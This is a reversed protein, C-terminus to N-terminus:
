PLEFAIFMLRSARQIQVVVPDGSHLKDLMDRLEAINGFSEGNVACILDGTMFEDNPAEANLLKAAVVAGAPKRLAGLTDMLKDDLNLALIGLQPVLNSEMTAMHAFRFPDNPREAVQVEFSVKETGRLADFTVRDGVAHQRISAELRRADTVPRSDLALIIDGVKAGATDAPGGPTVDELIMGHERPLKLGAALTHTITSLVVGVYGKHVHGNSRIQRFVNAATNSPIAFGLGENGGSQSIILTNIGVVEGRANVLPGGSNGPNIPADTQIYLMSNDTSLQRAVSSVVGTSVTNELGLPSGCAMVMQGQRLQSSDGLTLSPLGRRDIKLVALDTEPDVGVVQAPLFDESSEMVGGEAQVSAQERSVLVEIKRAGAVVHANTLIYGEPDLIVGSGTGEQSTVTGPGAGQVQGFGRTLIQVVSSSVRAALSEFSASLQTLTISDRDTAPGPQVVANQATVNESCLIAIVLVLIMSVERASM